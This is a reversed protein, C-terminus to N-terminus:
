AGSTYGLRATEHMMRTPADVGVLRPIGHAFNENQECYRKSSHKRGLGIDSDSGVIRILVGTVENPICQVRVTRGSLWRRLHVVHVVHVMLHMTVHMTLHMTMVHIVPAMMRHMAPMVHLVPLHLEFKGATSRSPEM